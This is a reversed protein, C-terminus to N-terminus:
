WLFGSIQFFCSLVSHLGLDPMENQAIYPLVEIARVSIARKGRSKQVREQTRQFLIGYSCIQFLESDKEKEYQFFPINHTSM